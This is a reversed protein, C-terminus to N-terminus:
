GNNTLFINTLVAHYDSFFKYIFLNQKYPSTPGFFLCFGKGNMALPSLKVIAMLFVILHSNVPLHTHQKTLCLIHLSFHEWLAHESVVGRLWDKQRILFTNWRCESHSLAARTAWEPYYEIFDRELKQAGSLNFRPHSGVSNELRIKSHTWNLHHTIWLM